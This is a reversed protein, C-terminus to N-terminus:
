DKKLPLTFWFTSGHNPSGEAGIQGSLLEILRKALYLEMGLGPVRRIEDRPSRYHLQFLNTIEDETLGLGNDSVSFHFVDGNLSGSIQIEGGAPTYLLANKVFADVSFILYDDAELIIQPSDPFELVLSQNKSEIASRYRWISSDILAKIDVGQRNILNQEIRAHLLLAYLIDSARKADEEIGKIIKRAHTNEQLKKAQELLFQSNGQINFLPAKLESSLTYPYHLALDKARSVDRINRIAIAVSSLFLQANDLSKNEYGGQNSPRHLYVAGLNEDRYKIPLVIVSFPITSPIEVFRPAFLKDAALKAINERIPLPLFEDMLSNMNVEVIHNTDAILISQGDHLVKRALSYALSSIDGIPIARNLVHPLTRFAPVPYFLPFERHGPVTYEFGEVDTDLLIMGWSAGVLRQAH